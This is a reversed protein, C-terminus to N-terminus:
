EGGFIRRLLDQPGQHECEHYTLKWEARLTFHGVNEWQGFLQNVCSWLIVNCVNARARMDFFKGQLADKECQEAAFEQELQAQKMERQCYRMYSYFSRLTEPCIGIIKEEELMKETPPFLNGDFGKVEELLTDLWQVPNAESM